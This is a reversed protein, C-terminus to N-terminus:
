NEFQNALDRLLTAGSTLKGKLEAIKRDKDGMVGIIAQVEMAGNQDTIQPIKTQMTIVPEVVPPTVTMWRDIFPIPDEWYQNLETTNRAFKDIGFIVPDVKFIAFHLHAYPTGSKGIRGIIQGQTVDGSTKFDVDSLHTQHVWRTGWAGDIRYVMHRGFGTTPHSSFHYYLIQGNSIAKVEKGLDTDGGTRLNIDLGEHFGYSTVAGFGQAIYWDKEFEEKSGTNGVPYIM